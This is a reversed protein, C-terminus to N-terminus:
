AIGKQQLANLLNWNIGQALRPQNPDQLPQGYTNLMTDRANEYGSQNPTVYPMTSYPLDWTGAEPNAQPTTRGFSAYSDRGQDIQRIIDEYNKHEQPTPQRPEQTIPIPEDTSNMSVSQNQNSSKLMELADRQEQKYRNLISRKTSEPMKVGQVYSSRAQYLSKIIQEPDSGSYIQRASSVISKAGGHQIGMSYIVENVVPNNPIGVKDAYDRVPQYHTKTLYAQQDAGFENPYAKAIEKYKVNFQPTGPVLGKFMPGFQSSQRLYASMTGTKSALQHKGYSVGGPDGRGSSILDVRGNSEYKGSLSGFTNNNISLSQLNENPNNLNNKTMSYSFNSPNKNQIRSEQLQNYSNLNTTPMNPSTNSKYRNNYYLSTESNPDNLPNLTANAMNPSTNSNENYTPKLQVQNTILNNQLVKSGEPTLNNSFNQIAKEGPAYAHIISGGKTLGILKPAVDNPVTFCGWSTGQKDPGVYSGGHVVISRAFANDNVGKDLGRVRMSTGHKGQYIQDTIYTGLSSQKSGPTNSFGPTKGQAVYTNMLVKNQKTDVVWMRPQNSPISYDVVTMVPSKTLGTQLAKNQAELATQFAPRQYLGQIEQSKYGFRNDMPTFAHGGISTPGQQVKDLTQNVIQGSQSAPTYNYQPDSQFQSTGFQGSMGNSGYTNPNSYTTPASPQAPASMKGGIGGIAGLLSSIGGFIDDGGEGGSPAITAIQKPPQITNLLNYNITM